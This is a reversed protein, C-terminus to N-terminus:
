EAVPLTVVFVAGDPENDEVWVEGGYKSVLTDVLYLGIGTGDSELGLEGKEFISAKHSDSIGPGNDALRVAVMEDQREASVTIEPTEKDNHQVANRLLNRFVAELMQNALVEQDALEGDIDITVHQDTSRITDIEEELVTKLNIQSQDIEQTTMVDAIEGATTTLEAASHASERVTQLHETGEDDVYGTLLESQTTIIQLDNRIDHRLVENLIELNNRQEELLEKRRALETQAQTHAVAQKIRNLLLSFESEEVITEKTIYDTAGLRVADIAIDESGQGTLLIFPLTEDEERLEKLFDLGDLPVMQYDSVICAVGEYDLHELATQADYYATTEFISREEIERAMMDAFFESDDVIVVSSNGLHEDELQVLGSRDEAMVFMKISRPYYTQGLNLADASYAVFKLEDPPV